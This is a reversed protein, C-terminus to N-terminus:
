ERLMDVIDIHDAAVTDKTLEDIPVWAASVADDAGKPETVIDANRSLFSGCLTKSSRGPAGLVHLVQSKDRQRGGYNESFRMKQIKEMILLGGSIGM